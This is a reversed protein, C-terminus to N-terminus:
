QPNEAPEGQRNTGPAGSPYPTRRVASSRPSLFWREGARGYPLPRSGSSFIEAVTFAQKERAKRPNRRVRDGPRLETAPLAVLVANAMLANSRGGGWQGSSGSRHPSLIEANVNDAFYGATLRRSPSTRATRRGGM